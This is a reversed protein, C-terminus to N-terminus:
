EIRCDRLSLLRSMGLISDSIRRKGIPANVLQYLM